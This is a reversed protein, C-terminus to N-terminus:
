KSKVWIPEFSLKLNEKKVIEWFEREGKYDLYVQDHVTYNDVEIKIAITQVYDSEMKALVPYM